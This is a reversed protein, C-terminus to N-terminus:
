PEIRVDTGTLHARFGDDQVTVGQLILGAPLGEIEHEITVAQRALSGLLSALFAPGGIDITEPEIVLLGARVLVTGTAEVDFERGMAEFTRHVAARDPHGAVPGVRVDNGIQGAVLAFPVTADVEMTGAVLGSPGTRVDRGTVVVDHIVGDPTALTDSDLSLGTLWLEGEDLDAPPADPGADPTASPAGAGTPGPAGSRAGLPRSIALAMLTLALVIVLVAVAAGVLGDKLRQREM